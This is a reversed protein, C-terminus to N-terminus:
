QKTLYLEPYLENLHRVGEGSVKLMKFAERDTLDNVNYGRSCKLKEVHGFLKCVMPRVEYIACRGKQYFTCSGFVMELPSKSSFHIKNEVVHKKIKQYEDESCSVPGCCDGCHPDCKM